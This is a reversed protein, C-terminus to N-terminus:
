WFMWANNPSLMSQPRISVCKWSRSRTAMEILAGILDSAPNREARGTAIAYRFIQGALARARHATEIAGRREIKRLAALLEPATVDAIPRSGIYPTLDKDLLRRERAATGSALKKTRMALLEGAIVEFSNAAKDANVAKHAKRQEGPDVGAALLKRAAAHRERADALSV